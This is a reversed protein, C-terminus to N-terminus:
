EYEGKRFLTLKLAITALVEHANISALPALAARSGICWSSITTSAMSCPMRPKKLPLWDRKKMAGGGSGAGAASLKVMAWAEVFGPYHNILVGSIQFDELARVIQM